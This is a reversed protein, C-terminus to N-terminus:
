GLPVRWEIRTGGGAGPGLHFSGGLDEARKEMNQLGRGTLARAAATPNQINGGDMLHNVGRGNDTVTVVLADKEVAVVVRTASAEAHKIINALAESIVQSTEHRLEETLDDPMPGVELLPQFGFSEAKDDVLAAITQGFALHQPVAHLGFIAERLQHIAADIGDISTRLRDKAEPDTITAALAQLGMGTAFLQQIVTDHLDRAIRERDHMLNLQDTASRLAL